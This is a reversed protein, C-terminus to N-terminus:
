ALPIAGAAKMREVIPADLPPRADVLAPVGQTTASGICDINEKITFPVGHFAGAAPARDAEDAAALADEALTVTVANVASNVEGIRDLHAQVVERSSVEKSRILEALETASRQWLADGM